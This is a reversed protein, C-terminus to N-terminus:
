GRRARLGLPVVGGRQQGLEVVRRRRPRAQQVGVRVGAVELQEVVPPQEHEVEARHGPEGVAEGSRQRDHHPQRELVPGVIQEGQQTSLPEHQRTRRHGPRSAM